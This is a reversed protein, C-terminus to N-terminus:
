LNAEHLEKPANLTQSLGSVLFTNSFVDNVGKKWASIKVTAALSSVIACSGDSSHACARCHKTAATFSMKEFWNTSKKQLSPNRWILQTHTETHLWKRPETQKLVLRWKRWNNRRSRWLATWSRHELFTEHVLFVVSEKGDAGPDTSLSQIKICPRIKGKFAVFQSSHGRAKNQLSM